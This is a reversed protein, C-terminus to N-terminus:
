EESGLGDTKDRKEISVSGIGGIWGFDVQNRDTVFTRFYTPKEGVSILWFYSDRVFNETNQCKFSLIRISTKSFRARCLAKEIKNTIKANM